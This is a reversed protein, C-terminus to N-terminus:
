KKLLRTIISRQVESKLLLIVALLEITINNSKSKNLLWINNDTIEKSLWWENHWVYVIEWSTNNNTFSNIYDIFDAWKNVLKIEINKDEYWDNVLSTKINISTKYSSFFLEYFKERSYLILVKETGMLDVYKM